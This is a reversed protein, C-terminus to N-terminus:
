IFNKYYNSLFFNKLLQRELRFCKRWRNIHWELIEASCFVLSEYLSVYLEARAMFSSMWTRRWFTLVRLFPPFLRWPERLRSVKEHKLGVANRVVGLIIRVYHVDIDDASSDQWPHYPRYFSRDRESVWFPQSSWQPRTYLCADCGPQTLGRSRWKGLISRQYGRRAGIEATRCRDFLMTAMSVPKKNAITRPISKFFEYVTSLRRIYSNLTDSRATFNEPKRSPAFLLGKCDFKSDM